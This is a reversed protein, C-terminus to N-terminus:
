IIEKINIHPVMIGEKRMAAHIIAHKSRTMETTYKSLDSEDYIYHHKVIQQGPDSMKAYNSKMILSQKKRQDGSVVHGMKSDSIKKIVDKTRSIDKFLSSMMEKRDDTYAKSIAAKHEDTMSVGKRNHGNIYTRGPKVVGGCGCKCLKEEM